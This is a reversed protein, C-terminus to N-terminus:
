CVRNRGDTEGPNIRMCGPNNMFSMLNNGASMRRRRYLDGLLNKLIM